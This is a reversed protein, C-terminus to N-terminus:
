VTVWVSMSVPWTSLVAVAVPVGGVPGSTVSVSSSDMGSVGSEVIVRSLVPDSASVSPSPTSLSPSM